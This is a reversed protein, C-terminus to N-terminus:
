LHEGGATNFALTPPLAAAYFVSVSSFPSELYQESVARVKFRYAAAATLGTALNYRLDTGSYVLDWREINAAAVGEVKDVFLRYEKIPSGGDDYAPEWMVEISSATSSIWAPAGPVGPVTATHCTTQTANMGAGAKNLAYGTLRYTTQPRLGFVTADFKSPDTRGDYAIRFAGYLGDDILVVYGTVLSGAPPAVSSWQVSCSDRSTDTVQIVPAPPTEVAWILTALSSAESEGIETVSSISILYSGGAVVDTYEYELTHGPVSAVLVRGDYIEYGILLAATAADPSPSWRFAIRTTSTSVIVPAAAPPSPLPGAIIKLYPWSLASWGARNLAQYTFWYAKQSQLGTVKAHLVNPIAAGDYVRRTPVANSNPENVYLRYGLV